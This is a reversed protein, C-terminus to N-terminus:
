HGRRVDTETRPGVQGHRESGPITPCRPGLPASWRRCLGSHLLRPWRSRWWRVLRTQRRAYQWVALSLAAVPLLWPAGDLFWQPAPTLGGIRLAILFAELYSFVFFALVALLFDAITRTLAALAFALALVAALWCQRLILGPILTLPNFANAYLIVCDSVFIPLGALAALFLLKAALLSKWSYPRTVWFQRNGALPEAQVVSVTAFSWLVSILFWLLPGASPPGHLSGPVVALRELGHAAVGRPMRGITSSDKRFIHIAQRVVSM